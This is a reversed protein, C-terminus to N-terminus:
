YNKFHENITKAYELRDPMCSTNEIIKDAFLETAREFTDAENWAEGRIL